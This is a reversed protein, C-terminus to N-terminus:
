IATAPSGYTHMQLFTALLWGSGGAGSMAQYINKSNFLFQIAANIWCTNGLNYMAQIPGLPTSLGRATVAALVRSM